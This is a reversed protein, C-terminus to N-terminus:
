NVHLSCATTLLWSSISAHFLYHIFFSHVWSLWGILFWIIIVFNDTSSSSQWRNMLCRLLLFELSLLHLLIHWQRLCANLKWKIFLSRIKYLHIWFIFLYLILSNPQNLFAFAPLTFLVQIWIPRHILDHIVTHLRTWIIFLVIIITLISQKGISLNDL